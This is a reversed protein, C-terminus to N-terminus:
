PSGAPQIEFRSHTLAPKDRAGARGQASIVGSGGADNDVAALAEDLTVLGDSIQGVQRYANALLGTSTIIQGRPRYLWWGKSM